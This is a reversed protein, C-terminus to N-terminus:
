DQSHCAVKGTGSYAFYVWFFMSMSMSQHIQIGLFSKSESPKINFQGARISVEKRRETLRRPTMVLLHTKDDNIVFKNAAM